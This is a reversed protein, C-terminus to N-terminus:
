PKAELHAFLADKAETLKDDAIDWDKRAKEWGADAERGRELWFSKLRRAELEAASAAKVADILEDQTM